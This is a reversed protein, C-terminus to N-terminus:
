KASSYRAALKCQWEAAALLTLAQQLGPTQAQYKACYKRHITELQALQESHLTGSTAYCGHTWTNRRSWAKGQPTRPGTSKRANRRNAAIQAPTAM